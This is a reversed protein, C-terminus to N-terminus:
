GAGLCLFSAGAAFGAADTGDAERRAAALAAAPHEGCAVGAHFAEMIPVVDLDPVPIVSAILAGVGLSLLAGALGLVEDGARVSSLATNCASLVMLRPLGPLRQLDYVTVPGDALELASFLPNDWRVSGHAAIHAM